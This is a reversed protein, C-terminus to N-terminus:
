FIIKMINNLTKCKESLTLITIIYLFTIFLLSSINHEIFLAMSMFFLFIFTIPLFDKM